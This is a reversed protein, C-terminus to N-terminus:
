YINIKWIYNDWETKNANLYSDIESKPSDSVNYFEKPDFTNNKIHLEKSHSFPLILIEVEKNIYEEPIHINYNNSLPRIIERVM